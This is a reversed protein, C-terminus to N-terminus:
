SAWPQCKSYVITFENIYLVYTYTHICAYMHISIYVNGALWLLFMDAMIYAENVESHSDNMWWPLRAYVGCSVEEASPTVTQPTVVFWKLQPVPPTQHFQYVFLSYPTPPESNKTLLYSLRRWERRSTLWKTFLQPICYWRRAVLKRPFCISEM